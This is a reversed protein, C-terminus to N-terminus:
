EVQEEEPCENEYIDDRLRCCKVENWDTEDFATDPQIDKIPYEHGMHDKFVVTENKNPYAQLKEILQSVTLCDGPEVFEDKVEPGTVIDDVLEGFADRWTTKDEM